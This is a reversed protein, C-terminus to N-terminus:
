HSTVATPSVGVLYAAYRCRDRVEIPFNTTDTSMRNTVYSNLIGDILVQRPNNAAPSGDPWKAKLHGGGWLLDLKDIVAKTGALHGLPATTVTEPSAGRDATYAATYITTLESWDFLFNDKQLNSSTANASFYGSTLAINPEPRAHRETIITVTVPASPMSSLKVTYTTYGGEQVTSSGQTIILKGTQDNDNININHTGVNTLAYGGTASPTCTLVAVHPSAEVTGDDTGTITLIQPINWNTTTFTLTAPSFSAQTSPAISPTVTVTATPPKKLYVYVTDTHGAGAAENVTTNAGTALIGVAATTENADTVIANVTPVSYNAYALDTSAITHGIFVARNGNNTASPALTITVTQPTTYNASTFTLSAPSLTVLNTGGLSNFAQPTITVNAKPAAGLVVTYTDTPQSGEALLTYGGSETVTVLSSGAVDNDGIYITGTTASDTPLYGGTNSAYYTVSASHSGEVETDDVATVTVTQPVNWNAPTFTLADVSLGIQATNYYPTLIVNASPARRLVVTYSDTAGGEVVRTNGGTQVLNILSRALDDSDLMRVPVTTSLSAYGAPATSTTTLNLTDSHVGESGTDAIAILTVTQLTTYNAPTFTLTTTDVALGNVLFRFQSGSRTMTVIVDSAPAPGVLAVDVTDTGSDETVVTTGGSETVAIRGTATDNDVVTLAVDNAVMGNYRTDTGSVVATTNVISMNITPEAVANDIATVTVTATRNWATTGTTANTFDLSTPSFTVQSTNVANQFYASPTVRVTTSANPAAGLTINYTFPTGLETVSGSTGTVVVMPNSAENDGIAVNVTAIDAPVYGGAANASYTLVSTMAGEVVADDVATITVTQPIFWNTPTFTLTGTSLSLQGAPSQTATLTVNATPARRLAVEITDTMGGEVVRTAGNTQVIQITNAANAADDNDNVTVPSTSSLSLFGAPQSADTTATITDTFVVEPTTDNVATVTVAQATTWNAPTFTLVAPSFTVQSTAALNVVVNATPATPGSLSINVVDTAGGETVETTGGTPAIVIRSGVDNDTIAVNIDGVAFNNYRSDTGTVVTTITASHLGEVVLDDVATVTVTQTTNWNTPTFTLVGGSSLTAQAPAVTMTVTVNSNPQGALKVDITDTAGGETVATTGGSQTVLVGASTNLDNDGITANVYKVNTYGGGSAVYKIPSVHTTEVALDDTASLTVTQPVNWNATTFTLNGIGSVDGNNGSWTLTVTGTPLKDLVVHYTDTMGGEVAASAGWTEIVSIGNAPADDNDNVRVIVPACTLGNYATDTSTTSHTITQFQVGQYVADNVATLTITRASTYTSPTITLTAVGASPTAFTTDTCSLALRSNDYNFTLTVNATPATSTAFAVTYNDTAGGETVVPIGTATAKGPVFRRPATDNDNVTCNFDSVQSGNYDADTSTVANRIVAARVNYPASAVLFSNAIADDVATITVTQPVNWNTDTFTLSAPSITVDTSAVPAAATQWPKVAAPTVTVTTTAAPPATLVVTYTDTTGGETVVTTGGSQSVAVLKAPATDNDSINFALPPTYINTYNADASTVTHLISSTLPGDNSGNEYGRVTVTQATNWNTSDFTLTTVDTLLRAASNSANTVFDDGSFGPYAATLNMLAINYQRNVRNVLNSETNIQLEPGFLGADAMTGPQVYDPLFWNFVSPAKQPSQGIFPTQDGLRMRTTGLPFKALESSPYPILSPSDSGTFPVAMTNLNALPASSTAKLARFMSAFHMLPEKQKGAGPLTDPVELSRAEYDLLIAKVVAGLNGNTSRYAESVRYIYGPSPNSTVLRQILERSIVVPTNQHGNYTSAAPDGALANHALRLDNDALSYTQIDSMGSIDVYPIVTEGAKPQADTAKSAFLVKSAGPYAKGGPPTVYPNFDHYTIGNFRGIAKLPYIYPAQFFAEGGGTNFDTFNVGQFEIQPSAAVSTPVLAYGQTSLRRVTVAAHRAGFTLGTMVRALETIDTQNYTPIPLADSGLVLSGDPHRLVLGITFLQMVERAYNEDPYIDIGGSVYHARNRLHSLYTAMMPSYTVKELLDRYKGFAGQALMDWYNAAGYHKALITTDNESIVLIEQLAAATRQRVQDKSNLVMTWWERRRNAANQPSNFAYINNTTTQYPNTLNGFADYSATYGQGAFQPDQGAQIPKAGRLAFEENDAAMVLALFNPSPTQAVDMQKTLWNTYGTIMGASTAGDSIIGDVAEIAAKVDNFSATTAGFTSQDLFRYIDREAEVATLTGPLAPAILDPRNPDFDQSGNAKNFHGTIEGTNYNTTNIDLYVEGTRLEDLMAQDTTAAAAARINWVVDTLPSTSGLNNRIDQDNNIRLYASVEVSSLGSVNVSVKANDNDGELQATAVGSGTSVVGSARTLYAVYMTRNNINTPDADCIRVFTPLNVIQPNAGSPVPGFSLKLNEPVELISDRVPNVSVVFPSATTGQGAPITITSSGSIGSITYDSASANGKTIDTSGNAPTVKLTLPMTGYSRALKVTAAQSTLTTATKDVTEYATAVGVTATLSYLSLLTDLDSAAGGSANTPTTALNPNTGMQAEIADSVGDGDADPAGQLVLWAQVEASHTNNTVGSTDEDAVLGVSAPTLANYRVAIPDLDTAALTEYFGDIGITADADGQAAAFISPAAYKQAFTGTALTSSISTGVGTSFRYNSNTSLFQGSGAPIVIFHVTEAAHTHDANEAETLRVRFSPPYAYITDITDVRTTVASAENVTVCQSFIAPEREFYIDSSWYSGDMNQSKGTDTVGTSTGAQVVQGGIAYLGQEMVMYSATETTHVGDMFDWEQVRYEFSAHNANAPDVALVNRVRIFAPAADTRSLPGFVVIPTTYATALNVKQWVTPATQNVSVNGVVLKAAAEGPMDGIFLGAVQEQAHTLDANGSTEEQFTFQVRTSGSSLVPLSAMRLDGPEVDAKTQTQAVVVPNTFPGTYFTKLANGVTGPNDAWLVKGDLYGIGLSVAVYGIGESTIATTYNLQTEVNVNFTTATVASNRTKLARPNNTAILNNTTEVQTLVAPPDTFGTLAVATDTRNVAAVRGVQWHQTGFTHSGPTIAFYHVTIAGTHDGALYDWEDIQWQFGTATVSRVRIVHPDGDASYAPGM